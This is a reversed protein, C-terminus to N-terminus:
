EENMIIVGNKDIESKLLEDANNYFVLDIKIDFNQKFLETFFEVKKIKFTENSINSKIALDIDGGRKNDDVRSGFLYVESNGFSKILALKIIRLIYKSLRM